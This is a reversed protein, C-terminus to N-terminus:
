GLKLFSHIEKLKKASADSRYANDVFMMYINIGEILLM